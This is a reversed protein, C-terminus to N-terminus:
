QKGERVEAYHEVLFNMDFSLDDLLPILRERMRIFLPITVQRMQPHAEKACRLSFFHRWERINYTVVIETKLSNPLISRAEQPTRGLRLLRMYDVEATKCCSHWVKYEESNEPFFFPRILTIENGFGDKSYNCYRTSEQTYAAGVRHRVIEHSIGRDVVFKVTVKEHELTSTHGSKIIRCLFVKYSEETIAGESKYATRAYRELNKAIQKGDFPYVEVYPEIIKMINGKGADAAV